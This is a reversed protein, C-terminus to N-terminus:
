LCLISSKKYLLFRRRINETVSLNKIHKLFSSLLDPNQHFHYKQAMHVEVATQM